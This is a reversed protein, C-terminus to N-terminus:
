SFKRIGGAAMTEAEAVTQVCVGVAGRDLQMRAIAVSKHTKAHPRLAVGAARATAAMRDLNRELANLDVVLAPTDLDAEHLGPSPLVVRTM